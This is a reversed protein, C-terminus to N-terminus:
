EKEVEVLGTMPHGDERFQKKTQANPFFHELGFRIRLAENFMSIEVEGFSERVADTIENVLDKDSLSNIRDWDLQDRKEWFLTM